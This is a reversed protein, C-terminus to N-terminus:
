AKAVNPLYPFYCYMMTYGHQNEAGSTEVALTVAEDKTVQASGTSLTILPLDFVFGSNKNAAIVNFSCDAGNQVAKLAEVTQFYATAEGGADFNGVSVDFSGLVGVAKDPTVNNNITLTADQVYAFLPKGHSTTEDVVQMKLRYINNSTNFFAEGKSPNREGPKRLDGVDGTRYEVDMGVFALEATVKSASEINLTFENPVAGTIYEAQYDNAGKGLVRELQYSFTKILDPDDENRICVSDFWAITKASGDETFAPLTTDDFVIRDESVSFIRGFFAGASFRSTQTDAGIFLWKGPILGTINFAQTASVIAQRGQVVEASIDGADFVGGVVSVKANKTPTEDFLTESVVLSTASASVVTKLGNNGPISFGEFLVKEGANFGSLGSAASVTSDAGVVGTLLTYDGTLSATTTTERADAFMFGQLYQNLNSRTFDLTFGANANKDVINGKKNQRSMSIPNRAVTEYEAGFDSYEDVELNQWVADAGDVGPLRKFCEELAIFLSTANSDIKNITCASM